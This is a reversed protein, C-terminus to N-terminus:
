GTTCQRKGKQFFFADFGHSGAAIGHESTGPRAPVGKNKLGFAEGACVLRM